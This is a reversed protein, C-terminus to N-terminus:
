SQENDSEERLLKQKVLEDYLDADLLAVRKPPTMRAAASNLLVTMKVAIEYGLQQGSLGQLDANKERGAVPAGILKHCHPCTLGGEIKKLQQKRTAM